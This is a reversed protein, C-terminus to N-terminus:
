LCLSYYEKGTDLLWPTDPEESSSIPSQKLSIHMENALVCLFFLFVNEPSCFGVEFGPPQVM